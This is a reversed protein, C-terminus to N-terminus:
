QTEGTPQNCMAVGDSLTVAEGGEARPFRLQVEVYNDGTLTFVDWNDGDLGDVMLVSDGDENRYCTDGSCDYTISADGECEMYVELKRGNGDAQTVMCGERLERTVRELMVRGAEIQGSRSATRPESSLASTVLAVTVGILALAIASAVLMEVLTFGAEQRRKDRM